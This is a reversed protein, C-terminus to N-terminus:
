MDFYIREWNEKISNRHELVGLIVGRVMSQCSIQIAQLKTVDNASFGTRAIAERASLLATVNENTFDRHESDESNMARVSKQCSIQIAQLKTVDNASFGTPAIAERASLLATVNENTFDHHESDESIM